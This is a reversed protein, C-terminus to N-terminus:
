ECGSQCIKLELDKAPLKPQHYLNQQSIGIQATVASKGAVSKRGLDGGDQSSSAPYGRPM